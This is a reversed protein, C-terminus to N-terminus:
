AEGEPKVRWPERPPLKCAYAQISAAQRVTLGARGAFDDIIPRADWEDWGNDRLQCALWFCADRPSELRQLARDVLARATPRRAYCAAGHRSRAKGLGRKPGDGSPSLTVASSRGIADSLRPEDKAELAPEVALREIEQADPVAGSGFGPVPVRDSPATAPSTFGPIGYLNTGRRGARRPMAGESSLAGQEVLACLVRHATPQSLGLQKGLWESGLPLPRYDGVALRLGGILYVSEAVRALAPPLGDPFPIRVPELAGRSYDQLLANAYSDPNGTFLPTPPPESRPSTPAKRAPKRIRPKAQKRAEKQGSLYHDTLGFAQAREIEIREERATQGVGYRWGHEAAASM